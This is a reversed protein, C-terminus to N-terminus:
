HLCPYINDTFIYNDSNITNGFFQILTIIDVSLDKEVEYKPTLPSGRTVDQGEFQFGASM